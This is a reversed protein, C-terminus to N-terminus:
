QHIVQDFADLVSEHVSESVTPHPFVSQMLEAETTQLGKALVLGQIQETVEPGVMHVGLLEGTDKAFITKVFGTAEGIAIAKGNGTLDFRGVKIELGQKLAAEETLGVSAIQPYCYTCGPINQKSLPHVDMGLSHEVAITGEHSAKHALCPAGAVDGIAYVGPVSTEGFENVQIFGNQTKIAVAELGLSEINGTVGAAVLIRDFERATKITENNKASVINAVAGDAPIAEVKAGTIIEIGQKSLTKQMFASTEHDEAPLIRPLLEVLTVQSGVTQYFSAFEVGIAGSGIILLKEPITSPTMAERATWLIPEGDATKGFDLGPLARSRAGTALIIKKATIKQESNEGSVLITEKAILEGKGLLVDVNNKKLLYQIGQNLQQAVSRSRNVMGNIDASVQQEGDFRVGFQKAEKVQRFVDASKLLAKTPICGWNLCVGGLQDKEVVATRLGLQAARIASVYGGPGSGIVVLDYQQNSAM